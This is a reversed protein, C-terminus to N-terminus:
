PLEVEAPAIIGPDTGSPTEPLTVRVARWGGHQLTGRFPPAGTVNGTLRVASRDFDADIVVESGDDEARIRQLEIRERLAKRCGAHIARVAAGVQADSYDDIDEAIFDLFRGEQQLLGLLRLAPALSPPAAHPPTAQAAAAGSRAMRDSSAFRRGVLIALLVVILLPAAVFYVLCLPCLRYLESLSSTATVARPATGLLVAVNAIALVIGALVIITILITNGNASRRPQQQMRKEKESGEANAATDYLSAQRTGGTSSLRSGDAM